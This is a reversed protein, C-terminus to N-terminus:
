TDPVRRKWRSPHSPRGLARRNSYDWWPKKPSEKYRRLHPRAGYRRADTSPWCAYVVAWRSVWRACDNVILSPLRTRKFGKCCLKYATKICGVRSLLSRLPATTCPKDVTECLYDQLILCSSAFCARYLSFVPLPTQRNWPTWSDRNYRCVPCM